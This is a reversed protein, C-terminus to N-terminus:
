HTTGAALPADRTGTHELAARIAAMLGRAMDDLPMSATVGLAGAQEPLCPLHIFGGRTRTHGRRTALLHLLAYFVHNCVFTGATNSLEGHVGAGRIALLMTKVPLRTFYADPGGRVVPMDLPQAGTNDPIRADALNIAVRELSIGTRGAALGLCIVLAPRHATLLKALQQAPRDFVTPLQAAVIRHGAIQRRHLARAVLWSPNPDAKDFPDFGTLLVKPHLRLM